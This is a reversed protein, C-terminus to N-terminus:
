RSSHVRGAEVEVRRRILENDRVSTQVPDQAVAEVPRLHGLETRGARGVTLELAGSVGGEIPRAVDVDGVRLVVPDLLEIGGAVMQPCAAGGTGTAVTQERGDANRPVGHVLLDQDEEDDWSRM